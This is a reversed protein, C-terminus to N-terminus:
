LMQIRLVATFKGLRMPRHRQEEDGDTKKKDVVKLDYVNAQERLLEPKKFFFRVLTFILAPSYLINHESNVCKVEM